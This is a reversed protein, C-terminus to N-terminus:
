SELALLSHQRSSTQAGSHLATFHFHFLYVDYSVQKRPKRPRHIQSASMKGSSTTENELVELFCLFVWM